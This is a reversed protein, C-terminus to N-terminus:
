TSGWDVFPGVDLLDVARGENIEAVFDFERRALLDGFPALDLLNM